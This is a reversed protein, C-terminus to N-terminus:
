TSSSSEAPSLLGSACIPLAAVVSGDSQSSASAAAGPGLQHRGDTTVTVVPPCDPCSFLEWTGIWRWGEDWLPACDGDEPVEASAECRTCTLTTRSTM